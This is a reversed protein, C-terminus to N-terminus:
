IHILSLTPVLKSFSELMTVLTVSPKAARAMAETTGSITFYIRLRLFWAAASVDAYTQRFRGIATVAEPLVQAAILM